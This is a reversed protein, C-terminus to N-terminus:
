SGTIAAAAAPLCTNQSFGIPTESASTLAIASAASFFPTWKTSAKTNRNWGCDWLSRDSNSSPVIPSSRWISVCQEKLSGRSPWDLM